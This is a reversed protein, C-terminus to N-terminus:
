EGDLLTKVLHSLNKLSTYFLIKLSTQHNILFIHPTTEQKEGLKKEVENEM